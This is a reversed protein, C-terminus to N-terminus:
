GGFRSRLRTWTQELTEPLVRVDAVTSIFNSDGAWRPVVHVHLHDAIGAGAARGQNLGINYGDPRYEHDLAAVSRQVLAMADTLEDTRVDTLASVHRNVAVMLHGSAYPFANLLLYAHSSRVLVLQGRDDGCSLADCFVCSTRPAKAAGIWAM